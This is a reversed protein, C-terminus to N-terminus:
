YVKQYKFNMFGFFIASLRISVASSPITSLIEFCFVTMNSCVQQQKVVKKIIIAIVNRKKIRHYGDYIPDNAILHIWNVYIQQPESWIIYTIATAVIM